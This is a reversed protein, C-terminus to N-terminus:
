GEEFRDEDHRASGLRDGREAETLSRRSQSKPQWKEILSQEAPGIGAYLTELVTKM